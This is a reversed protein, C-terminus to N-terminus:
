TQITKQTPYTGVHDSLMERLEREREDHQQDDDAAM